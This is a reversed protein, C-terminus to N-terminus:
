NRVLVRYDAGTWNQANGPALGRARLDFYVHAGAGAAGVGPGLYGSGQAAGAGTALTAAIRTAWIDAFIDTNDPADDLDTDLKFRLDRPRVLPEVEFDTVVGNTGEFIKSTNSQVSVETPLTFDATTPVSGGISSPWGRYYVHSELTKGVGVRSGESSQFARRSLVTNTTMKLDVTTTRTAVVAIMTMVLLLVLAVVLAVGREAHRRLHTNIM